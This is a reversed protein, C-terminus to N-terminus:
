PRAQGRRELVALVDAADIVRPPGNGEDLVRVAPGGSLFRPVLEEMCIDAPVAEEPISGNAPRALDGARIVRLLPTDETFQSVYDDAPNLVIEAPRGIQVIRGGRMIALRDALRFAES